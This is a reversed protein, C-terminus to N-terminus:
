GDPGGLKRLYKTLVDLGRSVQRRDRHDMRGFVHGLKKECEALHWTVFEEGETTICVKYSREDGDMSKRSVFGKSRLNRLVATLSGKQINLHHTIFGPSAEGAHHLLMMVKIHNESLRMGRYRSRHVIPDVHLVFQPMLDMITEFLISGTDRNRDENDRM